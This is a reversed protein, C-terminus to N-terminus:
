FVGGIARGLRTFARGTSVGAQASTTGVAQGAAALVQWPSMGRTPTDTQVESAALVPAHAPGPSHPVLLGATVVTGELPAPTRVERAGAPVATTTASMEVVGADIPIGRLSARPAPVTGSAAAPLAGTSPPDASEIPESRFAAPPFPALLAGAAGQLDALSTLARPPGVLEITTGALALLAIALVASSVIRRSHHVSGNRRPDLLRVIRTSIQAPGVGAGPAAILARRAPSTALKLLCSGYGRVDGLRAVAWDDCAVERELTIARDLWWIAPHLGAVAVALRQVLIAWDDRRQVHAYEHVLVQDIEENSLRDVAGPALAIVPRVPGLVAAHRVRDCLVLRTPRGFRRIENWIPLASEM